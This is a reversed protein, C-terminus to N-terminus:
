EDEDASVPPVPRKLPPVTFVLNPYPKLDEPHWSTLMALVYKGIMMATADLGRENLTQLSGLSNEDPVGTRQSRHTETTYIVLTPEASNENPPKIGFAIYPPKIVDLEKTSLSPSTV